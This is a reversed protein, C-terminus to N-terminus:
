KEWATCLPICGASGMVTVKVTNGTEQTFAGTCTAEDSFDVAESRLSVMRGDRYQAILVTATGTGALSAVSYSYVGDEGTVDLTVGSEEPVPTENLTVSSFDTLSFIVFCYNGESDRTVTYNKRNPPQPIGQPYYYEKTGDEKEHVVQQPDLGGACLTVTMWGGDLDDNSLPYATDNVAICPTIEYTMSGDNRDHGATGQTYATVTFTGSVGVEVEGTEERLYEDLADPRLTEGVGVLSNASDPIPPLVVSDNVTTASPQESLVYQVSGSTGVEVVRYLYIPSESKAKGEYAIQPQMSFFASDDTFLCRFELPYVSEYDWYEDYFSRVSICGNTDLRFKQGYKAAEGYEYSFQGGYSNLIRSGSHMGFCRSVDESWDCMNYIYRLEFILGGAAKVRYYDYAGGSLEVSVADLETEWEPEAGNLTSGMVYGDDTALIYSVGPRIESEDTVKRFQYNRLKERCVDCLLDGNEDKHGESCLILEADNWIVANGSADGFLRDCDPCYWHEKTGDTKCTVPSEAHHQMQPHSCTMKCAEAPIMTPVGNEDTIEATFCGAAVDLVLALYREAYPYGSQEGNIVPALLRSGQRIWGFDPTSALSLKGRSMPTDEDMYEEVSAVLYQGDICIDCATAFRTYRRDKLTVSRENVAYFVPVTGSVDFDGCEYVRDIPVPSAAFGSGMCYRTSSYLGTGPDPEEAPVDAAFVLPVQTETDSMELWAFAYRTVAADEASVSIGSLCGFLLAACLFLSFIRSKM